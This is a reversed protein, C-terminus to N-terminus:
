EAEDGDVTLDIDTTEENAIRMSSVNFVTNHSGGSTDAYIGRYTKWQMVAFDANLSNLEAIQINSRYVEGEDVSETPIRVAAHDHKDPTVLTTRVLGSLRDDKLDIGMGVDIFPVGAAVLATIIPKKAPADDLALFVFTMATLESVNAEDIPYPHATIGERMRSYVSTYYNVKTPEQDLDDISMAGPSRFANHTQMVDGDFLHIAPAKTKAVGDLIYAGTGGLGVIGVVEEALKENLATIGARSSATDLYRFPRDGDAEAPVAKYRRATVNPNVKRAEGTIFGVYTTVKHWYDRYKHDGKPAASFYCATALGNGLDQPNENNIITDTMKEGTSLCPVGGMFYATHDSPQATKTSAGDTTLAMVLAGDEHVARETDVWPVDAIVLYAGVFRVTYGEDRLRALDESRAIPLPSM